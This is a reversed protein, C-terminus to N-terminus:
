ATPPGRPSHAWWAQASPRSVLNGASMGRFTPAPPVGIALDALLLPASAACLKCCDQHGSDPAHTKGAPLVAAVRGVGKSSCIEAYFGGAASSRPMIGIGGLTQMAMAFLGIALLWFPAHRFRRLQDFRLM